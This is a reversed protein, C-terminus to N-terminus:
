RIKNNKTEHAQPSQITKLKLMKLAEMSTISITKKKLKHDVEQKMYGKLLFNSEDGSEKM